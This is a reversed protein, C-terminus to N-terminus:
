LLQSLKKRWDTQRRSQSGIDQYKKEVNHIPTQEPFYSDHKTQMVTRLQQLLKPKANQAIKADSSPM